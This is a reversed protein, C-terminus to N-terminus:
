ISTGPWLLFLHLGVENGELHAMLEKRELGTAQEEDTPLKSPDSSIVM